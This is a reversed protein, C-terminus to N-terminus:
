APQAALSFAATGLGLDQLFHRRVAYYPSRAVGEGTGIPDPRGRGWPLRHSLGAMTTMGLTQSKKRNKAM